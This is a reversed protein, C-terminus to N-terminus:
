RGSSRSTAPIRLPLRRRRRLRPIRGRSARALPTTERLHVRLENFVTACSLTTRGLAAGLDRRRQAHQQSALAFNRELKPADTLLFGLRSEEIMRKGRRDIAYGPRGEGNLTIDGDAHRGAVVRERGSRRRRRRWLGRGSYLFVVSPPPAHAATIGYPRMYVYATYQPWLPRERVDDRPQSGREELPFFHATRLMPRTGDKCTM